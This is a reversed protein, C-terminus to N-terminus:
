DISDTSKTSEKNEQPPIDTSSAAIRQRQITLSGTERNIEEVQEEYRKLISGVISLMIGANATNHTARGFIITLQSVVCEPQLFTELMGQCLSKALSYPCDHLDLEILNNVVSQVQHNILFTIVRDKSPQVAGFHTQSFSDALPLINSITQYSALSYLIAMCQSKSLPTKGIASLMAQLLIQAKEVTSLTRLGGIALVAQEPTLRNISPSLNIFDLISIISTTAIKGEMGYLIYSINKPELEKIGKIKLNIYDLLSNIGSNELNSIGNLSYMILAIKNADFNIHKDNIYKILIKVVEEIRELNENSHAVAKLGQFANVIAGSHFIEKTQELHKQLHPMLMVTIEWKMQYVGLLSLCRYVAFIRERSIQYNKHAKIHSGLLLIIKWAESNKWIGSYNGKFLRETSPLSDFITEIAKRPFHNRVTVKSNIQKSLLLLTEEKYSEEQNALNSIQKAINQPDNNVLGLGPMYENAYTADPSASSAAVARMRQRLSPSSSSSHASSTARLPDHETGREQNPESTRNSLLGTNVDLTPISDEGLDAGSPLGADLSIPQSTITSTRKPPTKEQTEGSGVQIPNDATSKAETSKEKPQFGTKKVPLM